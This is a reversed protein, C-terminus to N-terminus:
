RCPETLGRPALPAPRFRVLARMFRRLMLAREKHACEIAARTRANATADTM